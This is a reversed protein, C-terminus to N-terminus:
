KKKETLKESKIRAKHKHDNRISENLKDTTAIDHQKLPMTEKYGAQTTGAPLNALKAAAKVM